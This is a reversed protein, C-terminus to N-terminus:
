LNEKYNSQKISYRVTQLTMLSHTTKFYCIPNNEGLPLFVHEM